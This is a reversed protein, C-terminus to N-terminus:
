EKARFIFRFSLNYLKRGEIDNGMDVMMGNAASLYIHFNDTEWSAKRHIAEMIASLADRAEQTVRFRAWFDLNQEYYGISPSPKPSPSEEIWVLKEIKAPAKSKRIDPVETLGLSRIYTHIDNIITM